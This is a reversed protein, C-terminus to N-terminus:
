NEKVWQIILPVDLSKATARLQDEDMESIDIGTFHEIAEYM